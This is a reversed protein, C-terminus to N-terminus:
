LFLLIQFAFLHGLPLVVEFAKWTWHTVTLGLQVM